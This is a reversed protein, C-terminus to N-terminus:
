FFFFNLVIHIYIYSYVYMHIYKFNNKYSFIHAPPEHFKFKINYFTCKKETERPFIGLEQQLTKSM